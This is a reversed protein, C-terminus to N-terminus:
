PLSSMCRCQSAMSAPLHRCALMVFTRKLAASLQGWLLTLGCALSGAPSPAPTRLASCAGRGHCYVQSARGELSLVSPEDVLLSPLMVGEGSCDSGHRCSVRKVVQELSEGEHQVDDERAFPQVYSTIDSRKRTILGNADLIWFHHTAEEFTLGQLVCPLEEHLGGPLGTSPNHWSDSLLPPCGQRQMGQPRRLQRLSHAIWIAEGLPGRAPATGAPIGARCPAAIGANCCM